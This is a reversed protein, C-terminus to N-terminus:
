IGQTLHGDLKSKSGNRKLKEFRVSYTECSIRKGSEEGNRLLHGGKNKWKEDWKKIKKRRIKSELVQQIWNETCLRNKKIKKESEVLM